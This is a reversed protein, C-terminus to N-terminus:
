PIQPLAALALQQDMQEQTAPPFSAALTGSAQMSTQFALNGKRFDLFPVGIGAATLYADDGVGNVKTVTFGLASNTGYKVNDFLRIDENVTISATVFSSGSPDNYTYDCMHGDSPTGGPGVPKGIISSVQAPTLLSCAQPVQNANNATPNATSAPATSSGPTSSAATTSSSGNGIPTPTASGSSTCAALVFLAAFVPIVAARSFM